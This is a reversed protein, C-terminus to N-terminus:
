NRGSNLEFLSILPTHKAITNHEHLRRGLILYDRRHFRRLSVASARMPALPNLDNESCSPLEVRASTSLPNLGNERGEMLSAKSTGCRRSAAFIAGKFFGPCRGAPDPARKESLLSSVTLQLGTRAGSNFTFKMTLLPFLSLNVCRASEEWDFELDRSRPEAGGFHVSVLRVSCRHGRARGTGARLTVAGATTSTDHVHRTRTRTRSSSYRSPTGMSADPNMRRTHAAYPQSLPAGHGHGHDRDYPPSDPLYLAPGTPHPRADPLHLAPDLSFSPNTSVPVPIPDYHHPHPHLTPSPSRPHAPSSTTRPDPAAILRASEAELERIKALVLAAGGGIPVHVPGAGDADEDGDGGATPRTYIAQVPLKWTLDERFKTPVLLSNPALTEFRNNQVAWAEETTDSPIRPERRPAQNAVRVVNNRHVEEGADADAYVKLTAVVGSQKKREHRPTGTAVTNKEEFSKEQERFINGDAGDRSGVGRVMNTPIDIYM